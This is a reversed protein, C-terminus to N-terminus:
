EVNQVQERMREIEGKILVAADTVESLPSKALITNAERNMEQCLFDLNKGLVEGEEGVILSRFQRVHSKLRTLEESIDSKELYYVLEQAIRQQDIKLDRALEEMKRTLRAEFM